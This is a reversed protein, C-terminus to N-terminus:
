WKFFPADSDDLVVTPEKFWTIRELAQKQWFGLWDKEAEEYIEPGANAQAVFEDSPPFVREEFSM